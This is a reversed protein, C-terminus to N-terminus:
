TSLTHDSETRIPTTSFNPANPRSRSQIQWTWREASVNRYTTNGAFVFAAESFTRRSAENEPKIWADISAHPRQALFYEIGMRLVLTALRRGRFNADLTIGCTWHDDESEFRICGVPMGDRLEFLLVVSGPDCLRRRLWDCHDAFSEPGASFSWRRVDRDRQWAFMTEADSIQAPRIQVQHRWMREVIRRAGRGDVLSRAATALNARRIESQLLSRVQHAMDSASFSGQRGLYLAAGREQLAAGVATQNDAIATIVMPTGCAALEYCTSGGATLALDAARMLDSIRSVDQHRRIGQAEDLDGSGLPDVRCPGQIVDIPGILDRCERLADLAVETMNAPDAAGFTVLVRQPRNMSALTSRPPHAFEERLPIFASGLLCETELAGSYFESKAFPHPNVIMTASVDAPSADDRMLLTRRTQGLVRRQYDPEFRYGDLIVWEADLCRALRALENADEASGPDAELRYHECGMADLRVAFAEPLAHGVFCVIGGTREWAQALAICRMVHGGGIHSDADARILLIPQSATM